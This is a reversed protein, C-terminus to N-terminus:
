KVLSQRVATILERTASTLDELPEKEIPVGATAANRLLHILSIHERAIVALPEEAPLRGFLLREIMETQSIGADACRQAFSKKETETVKMSLTFQRGRARKM